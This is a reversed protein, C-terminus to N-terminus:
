ETIVKVKKQKKSSFVISNGVLFTFMTITFGFGVDSLFHAGVLMRSFALVLTWIFGILILLPQLFKNKNWDSKFLPIYTLAVIGIAGATVHGSPFSKFEEAFEKDYITGKQWWNQFDSMSLYRELYRYRIRHMLNKLVTTILVSVLAIAGILILIKLVNPNDSTKALFIGGVFAGGCLILGVPLGIFPYAWWKDEINFANENIVHRSQFYLTIGLATLGIGILLAKQWWLHYKKIGLFFLGGGFLAIAAYGPAEGIAAMTLGFGNQPNFLAINIQLDFFSGFLVMLIPVALLPIFYLKQKM